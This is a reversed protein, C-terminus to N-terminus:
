FIQRVSQGKAQSILAVADQGKPMRKFPIRWLEIGECDNGEALKVYFRHSYIVVCYKM